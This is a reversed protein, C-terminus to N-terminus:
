KEKRCREFFPCYKECGGSWSYAGPNPYFLDPNKKAEQIFKTVKRTHEAFAKIDRSTKILEIVKVKPDITDPIVNDVCLKVKRGSFNELSEKPPVLKGEKILKILAFAYANMQLSTYADVSYVMRDRVKLDRLIIVRDVVDFRGKVRVPLKQMEVEFDHEVWLPDVFKAVDDIYRDIAAIGAKIERDFNTNSWDSKDKGAEMSAVFKDVVDQKKPDRRKQLKTNYYLEFAEHFALGRIMLYSSPTPLRLIYRYYYQRPCRYFTLLESPRIVFVEETQSQNKM